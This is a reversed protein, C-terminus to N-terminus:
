GEQVSLAHPPCIAVCWAAGLCLDCKAALGTARHVRIANFPCTKGCTGCGVCLKEDVRWARVQDDYGIAKQPCVAACPADACQRCYDATCDDSLADIHVQIRSRSPASLGTHREACVVVCSLCNSCKANDWAIHVPRVNVAAAVAPGATAGAQPAPATPAPISTGIGQPMPVAPAPTCAAML